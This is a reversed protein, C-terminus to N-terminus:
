SRITSIARTVFVFHPIDELSFDSCAKNMKNLHIIKGVFILVYYGIEGIRVFEIVVQVCKVDIAESNQRIKAPAEQTLSM